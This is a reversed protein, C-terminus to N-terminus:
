GHFYFAQEWIHCIHEVAHLDVQLNHIFSHTIYHGAATHVLLFKSHEHNNSSLILYLLAQLKL